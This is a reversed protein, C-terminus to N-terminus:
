ACKGADTIQGFSFGAGSLKNLIAKLLSQKGAWHRDHLLIIDHSKPLSNAESAVGKIGQWDTAKLHGFSGNTGFEFNWTVHAMGMKETAAVLILKGGAKIFRGQGPLRALTFVPSSSGLLKQFHQENKDYNDQFKKLNAPDSLDGYEKEYGKQTMPDHTFTHNGVKHGEKLMREVLKKQTVPDGQMNKGTLFFTAPITAAHVDLVDETGKQPGDDYTLCVKDKPQAMIEPREEYVPLTDWTKRQVCKGGATPLPGNVNMKRSALEAEAEQSSDAPALFIPESPALAEGHQQQVTHVLEHALLTQGASSRPSYRGTAFVINRGVTYAQAHVARASEGARKDTHVRVRGFDHGFHPEMFARTQDDLAQGPSRLVEHVIPPVLSENPERNDIKRQLRKKRCEECEGSPGPTGDCACKRHLLKTRAPTVIAAGTHTRKTSRIARAYMSM